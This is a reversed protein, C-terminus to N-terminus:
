SAKTFLGPLQPNLSALQDMILQRHDKMFSARQAEYEKSLDVVRTDHKTKEKLKEKTVQAQVDALKQPDFAVGLHTCLKEFEKNINNKLGEYTLITKKTTFNEEFIWKNLQKGYVITWHKIRATDNTNEKYFKMQSYITESPDRYLYIVNKRIVSLDEDHRHYCTFDKADHFYFARVLTPKGFYLEMLMRLWHSGTRPFSVLFPFDPDAVFKDAIENSIRYSNDNDDSM